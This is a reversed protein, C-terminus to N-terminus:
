TDPFIVAVLVLLFCSTSVPWAFGSLVMGHGRWTGLLILTAFFCRWVLRWRANARPIEVLMFLRPRALPACLCSVWVWSWKAVDRLRLLLLLLLVVVVVLLLLLSLLLLPVVVVLLMLVVVALSLLLLLLLPVVVVLLMLVVVALSLLLLLLLLLVTALAGVSRAAVAAVASVLEGWKTSTRLGGLTLEGPRCGHPSPRWESWTPPARPPSPSCAAPPPPDRLRVVGV